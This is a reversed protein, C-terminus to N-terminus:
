FVTLPGMDIELIRLPTFVSRGNIEAWHLGALRVHSSPLDPQFVPAGSDMPLSPYNAVNQCLVIRPGVAIDVCTNTVQGWTWGSQAGMQHVPDGVATSMQKNVIFFHPQVPDINISGWGTTRAIWGLTIPVGPATEIVSADSYRCDPSGWCPFSPPDFMERGVFNGPVMTPQYVPTGDPGNWFNTTCHSATMFARRGAFIMPFGITCDAVPTGILLGGELPRIFSVLSHGRAPEMRELNLAALPVGVAAAEREVARRAAADSVGVTVRNRAEDLDVMEVGPLPLVRGVIRDRWERLEMFTFDARRAVTPGAPVSAREPGNGVRAELLAVARPGAALDTVYVVRSGDQTRFFGGFGPIEEALRVSEEESPRQVEVTRAGGAPPAVASAEPTLPARGDCAAAAFGLAAVATWGAMRRGNM